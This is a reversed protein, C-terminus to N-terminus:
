HCCLVAGAHSAAWSTVLRRILKRTRRTLHGCSDFVVILMLAAAEEAATAVALVVAVVL